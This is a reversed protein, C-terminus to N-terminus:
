KEMNSQQLDWNKFAQVHEESLKQRLMSCLSPFFYDLVQIDKLVGQMAPCM